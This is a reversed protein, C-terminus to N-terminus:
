KVTNKCFFHFHNEKTELHRKEKEQLKKLTLINDDQVSNEEAWKYCTNFAMGVRTVGKPLPLIGTRSHLAVGNKGFIKGL